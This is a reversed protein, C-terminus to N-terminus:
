AAVLGNKVSLDAMEMMTLLREGEGGRVVERVSFGMKVLELGAFITAVGEPLAARLAQAAAVTSDIRPRDSGTEQRAERSRRQAEFRASSYDEGSTLCRYLYKSAGDALVRGQLLRDGVYNMLDQLRTQTRNLDTKKAVAMLMRLQQDALQLPMAWRLVALPARFGKPQSHTEVTTTEDKLLTCGKVVNTPVGTYHAVKTAHCGTMTPEPIFPKESSSAPTKPATTASLELPTAVGKSARNSPMSAEADAKAKAEMAEKRTRGPMVFLAEWIEQSWRVCTGYFFGGPARDRVQRELVGFKELEDFHRDITRESVRLLGAVKARSLHVRRDKRLNTTSILYGCLQLLRMPVNREVAVKLMRAQARLIEAPLDVRYSDALSTIM